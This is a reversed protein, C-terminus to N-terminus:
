YNIFPGVVTTNSEDLHVLIQEIMRKKKWRGKEETDVEQGDLSERGFVDRSRGVSHYVTGLLMDFDRGSLQKDLFRGARTSRCLVRCEIEVRLPIHASSGIGFLYVLTIDMEGEIPVFHSFSNVLLRLESAALGFYNVRGLIM